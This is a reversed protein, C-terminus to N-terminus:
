PSITLLLCDAPATTLLEIKDAIRRMVTDALPCKPFAYLTTGASLSVVGAASKENLYQVLLNLPRASLDGIKTGNEIRNNAIALYYAANTERAEGFKEQLKNTPQTVCKFSYACVQLNTAGWPLRQTIHLKVAERNTDRLRSDIMDDAATQLKYLHIAYASKKLVIYGTWV